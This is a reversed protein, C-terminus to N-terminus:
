ALARELDKRRHGASHTDFDAPWDAAHERRAFWEDPQAALTRMVDAHVERHWAVVEEPSRERWQQWIFHNLKPVDLGRTEPPRQEGRFTRASHAKWYVIHVLADKLTWADRTEPRPVLRAWDGPRLRAVLADLAEFERLTREVVDARTHRM